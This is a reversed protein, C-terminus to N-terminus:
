SLTVTWDKLFNKALFLIFANAQLLIRDFVDVYNDADLGFVEAIKEYGKGKRHGTGTSRLEQLNRLFKIQQQYDSLNLESFWYELKSIGGKLDTPNKFQKVIEKENLSDIMTKVLSLVLHDFEEQGDTIPLHLTKFNYEDNQSLPLFLDWQYQERWTNVFQKFNSKFKLDSIEPQTFACLFDRKVANTSLRADTAINYQKWHSHEQVPLDRGLDGLYVSVMDKHENDIEIGWLSQCRLYGAEVSFINPRSLYRQLVEKKFFVPTLYHPAGPNAGFYNSLKAPNSTYSRPEGYEDIGIIYEPYENEENRSYPEYGCEEVPKPLLIRKGMLISYSYTELLRQEGGWLGFFLGDENVTTSFEKLGNKQLSGSIKVRIDFFLLLAMQKAAAFKMLSKLKIYACDNNIIKAVETCEGNEEIEYFINTNIDHYLNNLLRFEESIEVYNPKIGYFERYQVINLCSDFNLPNAEYTIKDGYEIFGPCQTGIYSNWSYDRYAEDINEVPMLAAWFAASAGNIDKSGSVQVWLERGLTKKLFEINKTQYFQEKLNTM